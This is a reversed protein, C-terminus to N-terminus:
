KWTQLIHRLKLIEQALSELIDSKLKFHPTLLVKKSMFDQNAKQLQMDVDYPFKPIKFELPWQSRATAPDPSSLLVTNSSSLSAEEVSQNSDSPESLCIVKVTSKDQISSIQNLNVFENFDNDMYQLRIEGEIDFQRKIEDSLDEVSSPMGSEITLKEANDAGLIVRIKIPGIM